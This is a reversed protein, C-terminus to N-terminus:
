GRSAKILEPATERPKRIEKAVIRYKGGTKAREVM